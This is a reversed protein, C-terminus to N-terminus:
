TQTAINCEEGTQLRQLTKGVTIILRRISLSSSSPKGAIRFNGSIDTNGVDM